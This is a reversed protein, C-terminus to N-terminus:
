EIIIILKKYRGAEILESKAGEGIRNLVSIQVSYITNPSLGFVDVSEVSSNM